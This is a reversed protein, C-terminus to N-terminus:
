FISAKELNVCTNDRIETTIKFNQREANLCLDLNTIERLSIFVLNMEIKDLYSVPQRLVM